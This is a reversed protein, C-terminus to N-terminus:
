LQTKAEAQLWVRDQELIRITREPKVGTHKLKGWAYMASAAGIAGYAVTVIAFSIVYAWPGPVLHAILLIAFGTLTFWATLLLGVGILLVPAVMGINHVKETMEARLMAFRTNLFEKLEEKLDTVVEQVPKHNGNIV